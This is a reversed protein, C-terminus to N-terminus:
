YRKKNNKISKLSGVYERGNENRNKGSDQKINQKAYFIHCKKM